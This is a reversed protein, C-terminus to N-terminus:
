KAGVKKARVHDLLVKKIYASTKRQDGAALGEIDSKLKKPWRITIRPEDDNAM